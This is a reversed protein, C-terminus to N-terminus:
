PTNSRHEADAPRAGPRLQGRRRLQAAGRGRPRRRLPRWAGKRPIRQRGMRRHPRTAACSGRRHWVPRRRPRDRNRHEAAADRLPLLGTGAERDPRRDDDAAGCPRDARPRAQGLEAEVRGSRDPHVPQRRHRPVPPIDAWPLFPQGQGSRPWPARGSRSMASWHPIRGAGNDGGTVAYALQADLALRLRDGIIGQHAGAAGETLTMSPASDFVQGVELDDFYPGSVAASTAM